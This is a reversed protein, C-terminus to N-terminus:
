KKINKRKGLLSLLYYIEVFFLLSVFKVIYSGLLIGGFNSGVEGVLAMLGFYIFSNILSLVLVSMIMNLWSPVRNKLKEFLCLSIWVAVFTALTSFTFSLFGWALDEAFGFRMWKAMFDFFATLMIGAMSSFTIALATKKDYDKCAVIICFAFLTYIVADVCWVIGGAEIGYSGVNYVNASVACGIGIVYLADKKFFKYGVLFALCIVLAVILLIFVM